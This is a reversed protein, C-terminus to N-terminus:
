FPAEELDLEEENKKIKEQWEQQERKLWEPDDLLAKINLKIREVEAKEMDWEKPRLPLWFESAIDTNYKKKYKKHNRIRYLVPTKGTLLHKCEGIRVCDLKTLVKALENQRNIELGSEKKLYNFTDTIGIIDQNFPDMKQKILDKVTEFLDDGKESMRLLAETKMCTGSASFLKLEGDKCEQKEESTLDEWEKIKRKSLFHKAVHAMKGNKLLEWYEKYFEDELRDNLNEFVTHRAETNYDVSIADEYNTFICFNTTTFIRRWDQFLPRADHEEETMLPKLIDMIIGKYVKSGTIRLEDILVLQKGILFAKGKDIAQKPSIISCNDEGLAKQITKFLSSKGIQQFESYTLISHRIKEGPNQFITSFWDLVWNREKENEYLFNILKMFLELCKETHEDTHPDIAEVGGPRYSNIHLQKDEGKFIPPKDKEWKDPRYVKTEVVQRGPNKAFNYTPTNKKFLRQYDVDISNARYPKFTRLDFYRDDEKIYIVNKFFLLKEDEPEVDDFNRVIDEAGELDKLATPLPLKCATIQETYYHYNHILHKLGKEGSYKDKPLSDNYIHSVEKEDEPETFFKNNVDYLTLGEVKTYKLYLGISFLAKARGGDVQGSKLGIAGVLLPHKRYKIRLQFQEKTLPTGKPSYCVKHGKYTPLFLVAGPRGEAFNWSTPLCKNKDVTWGLDKFKKIYLNRIEYAEDVPKWDDFPLYVHWRGNTSKFPFFETNLIFTQRGIEEEPINQDIDWGNWLCAKREMDVNSRGQIIEETLHKEVDFTQKVETAFKKKTKPDISTIKVYMFKDGDFFNKYTETFTM